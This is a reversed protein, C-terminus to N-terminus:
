FTLNVGFIVQKATPYTGMDIGLSSSVGNVNASAVEPDLGPYKSFTFFNELSAFVRLRSIYVKSLWEKPLTYGLQIQKIKFYAGSFVTMDSSFAYKSWGKKSIVPFDGSKTEPDWANEYFWSYFNCYPRDTRWGQPIIKNGWVGTGFMTFDFGKYEMNITIGYTLKPLGCGLDTMDTENPSFEGDGNIDKYIAVGTSDFGETQYGLFHWLPKGVVCETTISSGQLGTGAIKDVTPDLYTLENHLTALNANISYSFDGIKDKWGLEVELGMNEVEGANSMTSKVGTELVPTVSVLLGKTTKKYWDLGLTLRSNLFRADLGLDIQESEEWELSPNPLGNTQSGYSQKFDSTFQYFDNNQNIVAAYPYNELVNINGNRGWSARLKLFSVVETSVNDGFFSENSVTWGASFSPFKGWRNDKGLKSSDFADARFNAQLSYRNDYSYTLRGFYSLNKSDNVDNSMSKNVGDGDKLYSLYRFNEAYGKLIDIGTASGRVNDSHSSEWSMGVMAGLDHVDAFTKNYNIFNEWQYYYNTNNTASISYEHKYVFDNCVFPFQYNHTNQFGLRYGFRSTYVLGDIPKFNLFALGRINFGESYDDQQDRRILPNGSQTQGSIPSIRYYKGNNGLVAGNVAYISDGEIAGKAVAVLAAKQQSSLQTPYGDEDLDNMDVYPGFLPDTTIAGLMATGNDSQQSISETRWKEISNNTGITLWKKIKYDANVQFSLRKYTDKSGTFIGDNDVYNIAAFYSGRDNGGQAGVTHRQSWTPEFVEKSWDVDDGQYNYQTRWDGKLFQMKEGFDIYQEADMVKLKRSLSSLQWQGNYFITGDASGAKGTKTTILIVGNGAQAGYIAASAADKLVEMSEIMEPDLYQINDVKLGDVILLPGLKGSNSSVGRVRIDASSGPAGSNSMVQVGAAKGQLAQAASSTARNALDESKVSAVSGTLDSKKMTGYGVVVVEELGVLDPVLNVNYPGEGAVTVEETVYGMYSIQLVDGDAAKMLFEGNGATITGNTTGKVIVNAGPIPMQEEDLVKGKVDHAQAFVGASLLLMPLALVVRKLYMKMMFPKKLNIITYKFPKNRGRKKTKTLCGGGNRGIKQQHQSTLIM